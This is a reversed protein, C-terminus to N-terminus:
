SGKARMEVEKKERIQRETAEPFNKKGESIHYYHENEFFVRLVNQIKDM